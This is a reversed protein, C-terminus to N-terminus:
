LKLLLKLLSLVWGIPTRLLYGIVIGALFPAAGILALIKPEVILLLDKFKMWM